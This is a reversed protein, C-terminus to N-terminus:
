LASPERTEHVLLFTSWRFGTKEFQSVYYQLDAQTLMSSQPIEEPLGVFLGGTIFRVLVVNSYVDLGHVHMEAAVRVELM